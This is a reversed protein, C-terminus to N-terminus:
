TDYEVITGPLIIGSCTTYNCGLVIEMDQSSPECVRDDGCLQLKLEVPLIDKWCELIADKLHPDCFLPEFLQDVGDIYVVSAHDTFRDVECM